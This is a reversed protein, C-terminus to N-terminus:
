FSSHLAHLFPGRLLYPPLSAGLPWCCSSIMALGPGAWFSGLPSAAWSGHSSSLTRPSATTEAPPRGPSPLLFITDIGTVAVDAWAVESGLPPSLWAPTGLQRGTGHTGMLPYDGRGDLSEVATICEPSHNYTRLRPCNQWEPSM